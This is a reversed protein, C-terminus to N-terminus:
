FTPWWFWFVSLCEEMGVAAEKLKVGRRTLDEQARGLRGAMSGSVSFLTKVANLKVRPHEDVTGGFVMGELVDVGEEALMLLRERLAIERRLLGREVSAVDMGDMVMGEGLDKAEEVGGSGEAGEGVLVQKLEGDVM